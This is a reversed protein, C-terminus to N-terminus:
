HLLFGEFPEFKCLRSGMKESMISRYDLHLRAWTEPSFACKTSRTVAIIGDDDPWTM